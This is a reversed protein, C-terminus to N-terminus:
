ARPLRQIERALFRSSEVESLAYGIQEVDLEDWPKRLIGQAGCLRSEIGQAYNAADIAKAADHEQAEVIRELETVRSQRESLDVRATNLEDLASALKEADTPEARKQEIQEATPIGAKTMLGEFFKWGGYRDRPWPKGEKPPEGVFYVTGRTPRGAIQSAAAVAEADTEHTEHSWQHGGKALALRATVQEARLDGQVGIIHVKM